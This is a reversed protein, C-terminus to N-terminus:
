NLDTEYIYTQLFRVMAEGPYPCLPYEALCDKSDANARTQVGLDYAHRVVEPASNYADEPAEIFENVIQGNEVLITANMSALQCVLLLTCSRHDNLLIKSWDLQATKEFLKELFQKTFPQTDIERKLKLLAKVAQAPKRIKNFDQALLHLLYLAGVGLGALLLLRIGHMGM